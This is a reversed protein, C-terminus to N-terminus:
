VQLYPDKFLPPERVPRYPHSKYVRTMRGQEEPTASRLTGDTERVVVSRIQLLVLKM